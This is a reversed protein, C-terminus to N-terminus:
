AYFHYIHAYIYIYLFYMSSVLYAKQFLESYGRSKIFEGLSENRDIDPNNELMDLYSCQFIQFSLALWHDPCYCPISLTKRLKM